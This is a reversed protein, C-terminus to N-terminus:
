LKEIDLTVDQSKVSHTLAGISIRDVGTEAFDRVTDLRVGGSAELVIKRPAVAARISKVADRMRSPTFNDLLVSDAGARAAAIAEEVTRAEIQIFMGAPSQERALQTARAIGAPDGSAEIFDLHNDKVLVADYLGIRHNMGGGTKVAAKELHRLLPTTKRTDCMAVGLGEVRDVFQRTLTAVGSLRGLLNLALREGTLVTRASAVVTGVVAGKENKAGEGILVKTVAGPELLEFVRLAIEIGAVVGPDRIRLLGRARRQAPVIALTTRDGDGVDEALAQNLFQDRDFAM